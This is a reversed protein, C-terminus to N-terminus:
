IKKMTIVIGIILKKADKIFIKKKGIITVRITIMIMIFITRMM